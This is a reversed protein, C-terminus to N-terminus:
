KAAILKDTIDGLLLYTKEFTECADEPIAFEQTMDQLQTALAQKEALPKEEQMMELYLRLVEALEPHTDAHVKKIIPLLKNITNIKRVGLNIQKSM